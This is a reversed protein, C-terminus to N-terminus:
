ADSDGYSYQDEGPMVPLPVTKGSFEHRCDACFEIQGDKIFYHCFTKEPKGDHAPEFYRVSPAFTPKEVNGNFSWRPTPIHHSHECGPCWHTYGSQSKRLYPTLQQGM